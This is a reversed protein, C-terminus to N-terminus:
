ATRPRVLVRLNGIPTFGALPEREYCVVPLSGFARQAAAAAGLPDGGSINSIGVVEESRNAIATHEGDTLNAVAPHWAPESRWGPADARDLWLWVADFLVEFGPLEVDRFSDKVSCGEGADVRALIEDAAVGPALTVADPYFPPTRTPSSWLAGEFLGGGCFLDCWEANNLAALETRTM